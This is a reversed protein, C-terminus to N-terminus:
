KEEETMERILAQYFWEEDRYMNVAVGGQCKWSNALAEIVRSVLEGMDNDMIIRYEQTM